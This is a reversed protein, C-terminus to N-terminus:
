TDAAIALVSQRVTRGAAKDPSTTPASRPIVTVGAHCIVGHTVEASASRIGPGTCPWARCRAQLATSSHTQPVTPIPADMWM